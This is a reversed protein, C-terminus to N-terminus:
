ALAEERGIRPTCSGEASGPAPPETKDPRAQGCAACVAPLRVPAGQVRNIRALRQRRRLAALQDPNWRGM